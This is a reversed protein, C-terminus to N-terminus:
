KEKRKARAVIYGIHAYQGHPYHALDFWKSIRKGALKMFEDETQHREIIMADVQKLVAESAHALIDIESGECDLKLVSIRAFGARKVLDELSYRPANLPQYAYTVSPNIHPHLGAGVVTHSGLSAPHTALQLDGDQYGCYGHILDVDAFHGINTRAMDVNEAQVEIAVIRAHPYRRKAEFTWSGIQAGVDIATDIAPLEDWLYHHQTEDVIARDDGADRVYIRVQYDALHILADVTPLPARPREPDPQIPQAGTFPIAFRHEPKSGNPLHGLLTEGREQRPYNIHKLAKTYAAHIGEYHYIHIHPAFGVPRIKDHQTDSDLAWGRAKLSAMPTDHVRGSWQIGMNLRHARLQYDPYWVPVFHFRDREFNYRPFLLAHHQTLLARIDAVQEPFMLEDPDLRVIADYGLAEAERIARNIQAANDYTYPQEVVVGGFRKVVAASGDQSGGDVAVIGDFVSAIVPLHYNLWAASNQFYFVLALKMISKGRETWEDRHQAFWAAMYCPHDILTQRLAMKHKARYMQFDFDDETQALDKHQNAYYDEMRQTKRQMAKASRVWGYHYLPIDCDYVHEAAASHALIDIGGITAVVDSVCGGNDDTKRNEIRFHTSRHGLRTHHQYFGATVQWNPTGYFHLVPFRVLPKGQQTAEILRERADEPLCEDADLLLLWDCTTLAAAIEWAVVQWDRNFVFPFYAVKVNDPYTDELQRLFANTDDRSNEDAAIIVEDCADLASQLSAEFCYDLAFANSVRYLAAIRTM